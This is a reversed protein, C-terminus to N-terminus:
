SNEGGPQKLRLSGDEEQETEERPVSTVRVEESHVTLFRAYPLHVSYAPKGEVPTAWGLLYEGARITVAIRGLPM